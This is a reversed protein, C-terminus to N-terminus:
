RIIAPIPDLVVTIRFAPYATISFPLISVVRKNVKLKEEENDANNFTSLNSNNKNTIIIVM